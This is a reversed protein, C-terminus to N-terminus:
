WTPWRRPMTPGCSPWTERSGSTIAVFKKEFDIQEMGAAKMLRTLKDLLNKGPRCRLDSWYVKAQEM